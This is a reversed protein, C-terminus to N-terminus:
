ADVLVVQGNSGMQSQYIERYIPSSALLQRHTGQAAIRGADLVLIQDAKLVSSIRQAVIFTTRGAMLTELAQQIKFETEMDVASTSADLILISPAVLLARAIAIRQRQGGSFNVGREEVQSEYGDALNVIFDLAQAAQAAAVVEELSANPRGFAINDRVTGSFLTTQQLVVGIRERLAHPSWQRVDIGDILVRGATADYFRPILNVLTSKGSGTAGLLAVTQGPEVRFSVADLVEETPQDGNRPTVPSVVPAVVPTVVPLPVAADNSADIAAHAGDRGNLYRFSVNEFVVEGAVQESRHANSVIQIAPSTHLLDLVREASVEARSVMALINSLLLLPAMGILLYNNFAVLEGVSLRGNITDVGGFWIVAVMGVNTVFTLAPIALALLRGVRVNEALYAANGQEFQEIAHPERVFAKVVQVGALNEQVPTNLASLKQQVVVYLPQVSLMIYRIILGAAVLMVVVILTLRWDTILAMVLAGLIMLVARILLAVGASAFMRVVDVDSSIRTMIQGTQMQDLNAFSLSQIHAFLSNRMDYAVGQSLQARCIGQGLTAVAGLVATGFMWASGRWVVSMDGQLVGQDIVYQLLRPILLEMVVPLVTTLLGFILAWRYPLVFRTIQRLAHM